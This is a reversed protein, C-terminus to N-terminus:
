RTVTNVGPRPGASLRAAFLSTIILSIIFLLLLIHTSYYNGGFSNPPLLLTQRHCWSTHQLVKNGTSNDVHDLCYIKLTTVIILGLNFRKTHYGYELTEFSV